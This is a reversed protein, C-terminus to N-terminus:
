CLDRHSNHVLVLALVRLRICSSGLLLPVWASKCAPDLLCLAGLALAQCGEGTWQEGKGKGLTLEQHVFESVARSEETSKWSVMGKSVQDERHRFHKGGRLIEGDNLLMEKIFSLYTNM